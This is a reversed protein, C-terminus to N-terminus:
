ARRLRARDPRRRLITRMTTITTAPKIIGTPMENPEASLSGALPDDIPALAASHNRSWPASLATFQISFTQYLWWWGGTPPFGGLPSILTGGVVTTVTGTASAGACRAGGVGIM